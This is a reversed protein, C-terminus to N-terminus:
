TVEIADLIPTLEATLLAYGADSPHTGDITTYYATGNTLWKAQDVGRVSTFQIYLDAWGYPARDASGFRELQAFQGEPWNTNPFARGAPQVAESSFDGTNSVSPLLGAKIIKDYGYTVRAVYYYLFWVIWGNGNNTGMEDILIRSYKMYPHWNTTTLQQQNWGGLAFTILPMGIAACAQKYHSGGLTQAGATTGGAISDGVLMATKPDGSVFKGVLLPAYVYTLFSTNTGSVVSMAGTGNVPSVTTAAPNYVGAYQAFLGTQGVPFFHGATTVSVTLRIYFVMDAAFETIGTFDSPLIVDSLLTTNAGIPVTFSANGGVTVPVYESVGTSRELACAQVTLANTNDTGPFWINPFDLQLESVAYSGLKARLRVTHYLLAGSTALSQRPLYNDLSVGRLVGPTATSAIVKTTLAQIQEVTLRSAYFKISKVHGANGAASTALLRLDSGSFTPNVGTTAAGGNAVIDSTSGSWAIATLGPKTASLVVNTGSGLLTGSWCDHEIVFTGQGTTLWSTDNYTATEAAQSATAAGTVVHGVVNNGVTVQPGWVQIKHSTTGTFSNSGQIDNRGVSIWFEKASTTVWTGTMSIRWVGDALKDMRYTVDTVMTTDYYATCGDYGDMRFYVYTGINGNTKSMKLTMSWNTAGAPVKAFAQFTMREGANRSSIFQAVRHDSTSTDSTFESLNTILGSGADGTTPGTLNDKTWSAQTFDNSHLFLNTHGPDLALGRDMENWREFAPLGTALSTLVGDNIYTRTGARAFTINSPLTTTLDQDLAPTPIGGGSYVSGYAGGVKAFMDAIAAYTGSQKVKISSIDAYAGSNKSKIAM